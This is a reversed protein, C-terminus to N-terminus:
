GFYQRLCQLVSLDWNNNLVVVHVLVSLGCEKGPSEASLTGQIGTASSQMCMTACEKSGIKCSFTFALRLACANLKGSAERSLLLLAARSPCRWDACADCGAELLVKALLKAKSWTRAWPLVALDLLLFGM